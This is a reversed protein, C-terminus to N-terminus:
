KSVQVAHLQAVLRAASHRARPEKIQKMLEPHRTCEIQKEQPPGCLEPCIYFGRLKAEKEQEVILPQAEAYADPELGTVQWSVEVNPHAPEFTFQHNNIKQGVVAQAFEGIYRDTSLSLRHQSGWFWEPLQVPLHV